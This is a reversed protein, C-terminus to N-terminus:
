VLQTVWLAVCSGAPVAEACRLSAQGFLPLGSALRGPCLGVRVSPAPYKVKPLSRVFYRPANLNSIFDQFSLIRNVPQLVSDKDPHRDKRAVTKMDRLNPARACIGDQQLQRVQHREHGGAARGRCCVQVAM